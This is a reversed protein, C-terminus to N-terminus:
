GEKHAQVLITRGLLFRHDFLPKVLPENHEDLAGHRREKMLAIRGLLQIPLYLLILPLLASRVIKDTSWASVKMDADALAHALYFFGYPTIHGGTSYRRSEKVHLPGFLVAFGCWLARLRSNLNLVNPTSFVALGGPKLVRQVERIAHRPNEIHELVETMTVLDFHNDPFPLAEHNLDCPSVPVDPLRMLDTTYDVAQSQFSGHERLTEILEGNGAGIDLHQHSEGSAKRHDPLGALTLSAAARIIKPTSLGDTSLTSAVTPLSVKHYPIM